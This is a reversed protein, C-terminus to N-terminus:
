LLRDVIYNYDFYQRNAIQLSVM